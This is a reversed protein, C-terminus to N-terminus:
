PTRESEPIHIVTLGCCDWARGVRNVNWTIYLKDGKPDVAASFTGAPTFGYKTKYFPHLFAIVKKRKTKVDFQVVPTGDQDSSGHAGPMYYLYRGTPDYRCSFLPSAHRLEKSMRTRTPDIPPVVRQPPPLLEQSM